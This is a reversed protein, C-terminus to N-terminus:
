AGNETGEARASTAPRGDAPKKRMRARWLRLRQYAAEHQLILSCRNVEQFITNFESPRRRYDIAALSMYLRNLLPLICRPAAEGFLELSPSPHADAMDRVFSEYTRIRASRDVANMARNLDATTAQDFVLLNLQTGSFLEFLIAGLAYIDARFAIAPDADHLGAWLEPAAYALDGPPLTYEELIAGEGEGICRATGFDSLRLTRDSMVLFNEPKLDRHAIFNKHIRQVARCMVRFYLLKEAPSWCDGVMAQNVDAEALEVGYYAFPIPFEAGSSEHKFFEDFESLPAVCQLIDLQGAFRPLLEAERCFCRWRYTNRRGLPDYFKLAVRKKSDRDWASVLLSWHGGGGLPGIRTIQEFRGDIDQRRELIGLLAARRDSDSAVPAGM